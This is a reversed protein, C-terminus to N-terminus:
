INFKTINKKRDIVDKLVQKGHEDSGKSKYKDILDILWPELNTGKGEVQDRFDKPLWIHYLKSDHQYMARLELGRSAMLSQADPKMRVMNEIELTKKYLGGKAETFSDKAIFMYFDHDENLPNENLLEAFLEIQEKRKEEDTKEKAEFTKLHKM